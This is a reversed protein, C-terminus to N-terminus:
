YGIRHKVMTRAMQVFAVGAAIFWLASFLSSETVGNAAVTKCLIAIIALALIQINAKNM